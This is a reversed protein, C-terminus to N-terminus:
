MGGDVTFIEARPCQLGEIPLKVIRLHVEDIRWAVIAALPTSDEPSYPPETPNSPEPNDLVALVADPLRKGNLTCTGFFAPQRRSHSPFQIVDYIRSAQLLQYEGDCIKWGVLSLGSKVESAGTHQLGIDRHAAEIAVVRGNRVPKGVLAKIVDKGCRVDSFEDTRKGDASWSPQLCAALISVVLCAVVTIALRKM